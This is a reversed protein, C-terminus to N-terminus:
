ASPQPDSITMTTLENGSYLWLVLIFLTLTTFLRFRFPRFRHHFRFPFPRETTWLNVLQLPNFQTIYEIDCDRIKPEAFTRYEDLISPLNVGGM